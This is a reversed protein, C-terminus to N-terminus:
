SQEFKRSTLNAAQGGRRLAWSYAVAFLAVFGWFAIFAAGTQTKFVIASVMPAIAMPLIIITGM